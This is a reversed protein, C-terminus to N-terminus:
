AVLGKAYDYINKAANIDRDHVEGCIPCRWEREKLTLNKYIYGCSNCRKSSSTWRGIAKCERNYWGSKYDIMSLIIGMAAESLSYALHRNRFMGSINLTEVGIFRNEEVIQTTFNHYLYDRKQSIKRELKAYSLRAQEYRKSSKLKKNEKLDKRFKENAPGYRRAMM